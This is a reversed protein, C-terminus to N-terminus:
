LLEGKLYIDEINDIMVIAGERDGGAVVNKLSALMFLLEKYLAYYIVKSADLQARELHENSFDCSIKFNTKLGLTIIFEQYIKDTGSTISEDEVIEISLDGVVDSFRNIHSDSTASTKFKKLIRKNM